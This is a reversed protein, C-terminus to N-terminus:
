MVIVHSKGRRQLMRQGVDLYGIVRLVADIRERKGNKVEEGVIVELVGLPRTTEEGRGVGDVSEEHLLSNAADYIRVLM